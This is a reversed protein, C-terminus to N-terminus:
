DQGDQQQGRNGRQQQRGHIEGWGQGPFQQERYGSGGSDTGDGVNQDAVDRSGRDRGGQPQDRDQDPDQTQGGSPGQRTRDNERERHQGQKNAM